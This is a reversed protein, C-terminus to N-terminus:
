SACYGCAMKGPRTAVQTLMRVGSVRQRIELQSIGAFESNFRSEYPSGDDSPKRAGGLVPEKAASLFELLGKKGRRGCGEAPPCAERPHEWTDRCGAPAGRLRSTRLRSM